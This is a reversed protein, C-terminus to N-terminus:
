QVLDVRFRVDDREVQRQIGLGLAKQVCGRELPHLVADPDHVGRAPAQDVLVCEDRRDPRALHGAGREVHEAGLRVRTWQELQRLDDDRRVERPRSRLGLVTGPDHDRLLHRCRQVALDDTRRHVDRDDVGALELQEAREEREGGLQPTQGDREGAAPRRLDRDRCVTRERLVVDPEQRDCCEVAGELTTDVLDHVLHVRGEDGGLAPDADRLLADSGRLVVRVENPDDHARVAVLELYRSRGDAGLVPQEERSREAERDVDLESRV